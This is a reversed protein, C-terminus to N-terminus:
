ANEGEVNKGNIAALRAMWAPKTKANPNAATEIKAPLSQAPPVDFLPLMVDVNKLRETTFAQWDAESWRATRGWMFAHAYVALDLQENARGALREWAGEANARRSKSPVWVEATLQKCDEETTEPDLYLGGVVCQGAQSAASAARLMAYVSTKGSDTNIFWLESQVVRGGPLKAKQRRGKEFPVSLPKSSGKIAYFNIARSCFDYVRATVGKKGGSDVLVADFGLDVLGDGPLARTAIKSLEVWAEDGAPDFSIVGSDVRAMIKYGCGYVAWELRDGQCDVILQLFPTRAPVIGRQLWKTAKAGELLQAHDPADRAPDHAIARIQQDNIIRQEPDGEEADLDKKIRTWSKTQSYWQPLHQSVDRGETDRDLVEQIKARPIITDPVPNAPNASTFMAVWVGGMNMQDLDDHRRVSGCSPCVHVCELGDWVLGEELLPAFDDCHPCAVYYTENTGAKLAKTIRCAPLDKPTSTQLVKFEDQGDARRWAQRVPDGRGGVDFAYESIEDLLVKKTSNGQLGKSSSATVLDAFGGKFKKHTTTSGSGDREVLTKIKAQLKASSDISPQWKKNNWKTLEEQSPQVILMGCPDVDATFIAWNAGLQSKGLQAAYCLTLSASPHTMELVEHGRRLYPANEHRYPGPRATGSEAPIILDGSVVYDTFPIYVQPKAAEALSSFLTVAACAVGALVPARQTAVLRLTM